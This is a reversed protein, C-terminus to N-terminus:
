AEEFLERLVTLERQRKADARKAMKEENQHAAQITNDCIVGIVINMLGFASLFLYPVFVFAGIGPYRSVLPRSIAMAWSELTMVQFLTYMSLRVGGFFEPCEPWEFTEEATFDEECNITLTFFLAVVYIFLLLLIM